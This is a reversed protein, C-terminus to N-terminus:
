RRRTYRLDEETHNHEGAAIARFGINTGYGFICLILKEALEARDMAGRTGAPAFHDLMGVRLAAEKLMDLLPVLGWRTRIEAKLRRLNGPESDADLPTLTIRGGRRDSIKLWDLRPLAEQLALLEDTMEQRLPGIFKTADL